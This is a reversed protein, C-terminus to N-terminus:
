FHYSSHKKPDFANGPNDVCSPPIYVNHNRHHFGTDIRIDMQDTLKRTCQLPATRQGKPEIKVSYALVLLIRTTSDPLEMITNGNSHMLKCTGEGTWIVGVFNMATFDTRFIM